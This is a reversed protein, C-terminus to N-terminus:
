LWGKKNFESRNYVRIGIEPWFVMILTDDIDKWCGEAMIKGNEDKTTIKKTVDTCKSPEDFLEMKGGKSNTAEGIVAAQCALATGLVAALILAKM